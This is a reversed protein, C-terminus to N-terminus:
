YELRGAGGRGGWCECICVSECVCVSVFVCM